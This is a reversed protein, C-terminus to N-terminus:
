SKYDQLESKERKGHTTKTVRCQSVHTMHAYKHELFYFDKCLGSNSILVTDMTYHPLRVVFVFVSIKM